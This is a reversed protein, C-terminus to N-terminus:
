SREHLGLSHRRKVGLRLGKSALEGAFVQLYHLDLWAPVIGEDLIKIRVESAEHRYRFFCSESLRVAKGIAAPSSQSAAITEEVTFWVYGKEM